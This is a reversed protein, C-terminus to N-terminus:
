IQKVARAQDNLQDKIKDHEKRGEEIWGDIKNIIRSESETIKGSLKEIRVDTEEHVKKESKLLMLEVDQSTLKPGPKKNAKQWLAYIVIALVGVGGTGTAGGIVQKVVETELSPM